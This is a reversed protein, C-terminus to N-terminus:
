YCPSDGKEQPTSLANIKTRHKLKWNSTTTSFSIAKNFHLFTAKKGRVSNKEAFSQPVFARRSACAFTVNELIWDFSLKWGPSFIGEGGGGRKASLKRKLQSQWFGRRGVMWHRTYHNNQRHQMEWWSREQGRLKVPITKELKKSVSLSRFSFSCVLWCFYFAGAVHFDINWYSPPRLLSSPPPPSNPLPPLPIAVSTSSPSRCHWAGVLNRFEAFRQVPRQTPPFLAVSRCM